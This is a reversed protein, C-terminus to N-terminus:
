YKPNLKKLAKEKLLSFFLEKEKLHGKNIIEEKKEFFADLNYELFTDIDLISGKRDNHKANNAIQLTSSFEEQEIETRIVTNKYQIVDDDICVKLNIDDFIDNEFFNIYRIGIRTIKEIIKTKRIKELVDFITESFKSWGSYEPIINISLVDPGIQVLYNKNSVKYHPKFKLGPDKLRVSEPLQLIPLSETKPFDKKIANYILGFVASPHIETTFRIDIIAELIPCPDISKPLNM